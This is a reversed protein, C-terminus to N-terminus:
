AGSKDRVDRWPDFKKKGSIVKAIFKKKQKNKKKKM